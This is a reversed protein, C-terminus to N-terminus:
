IKAREEIIAEVKRILNDLDLSDLSKGSHPDVLKRLDDSNVCVPIQQAIKEAIAKHERESMAKGCHPCSPIRKVGGDVLELGNKLIIALIAAETEDRPRHRGSEINKVTEPAVGAALAMEERTLDLYGRVARLQEPSIM